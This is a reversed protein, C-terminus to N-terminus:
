VLNEAGHNRGLSNLEESPSYTSGGIPSYGTPLTYEREPSEVKPCHINKIPTYIRLPLTGRPSHINKIPTNIRLTCGETPPLGGMPPLICLIPGVLGSTGGSWEGLGHLAAEKGL